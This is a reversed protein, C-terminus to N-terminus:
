RAGSRARRGPPPGGAPGPSPTLLQIRAATAATATAPQARVAGGGSRAASGPASITRVESSGPSVPESAVVFVAAAGAADRQLLLELGAESGPIPLTAYPAGEATSTFPAEGSWLLDGTASTIRLAATPGFFNQHFSWGNYNLPANVRVIQQAVEDGGQYVALDTAFDAFAGSARNHAPWAYSGQRLRRDKLLSGVDEYRLIALGYSTRAYWDRARAAHVAPARTSFAPDALDFFEANDTSANM